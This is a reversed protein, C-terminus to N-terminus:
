KGNKYIYKKKQNTPYNINLLFRLFKTANFIGSSRQLLVFFVLSFNNCVQKMFGNVEILIAAACSSNMRGPASSCVAM